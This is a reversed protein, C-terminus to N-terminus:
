GKRLLPRFGKENYATANFYELAPVINLATINLEKGNVVARICMNELFAIQMSDSDVDKPSVDLTIMTQVKPNKAFELLTATYRVVFYAVSDSEKHMDLIYYLDILIQRLIIDVYTYEREDNLLIQKIEYSLIDPNKRAVPIKPTKWDNPKNYTPQKWGGKPINESAYYTLLGVVNSKTIVYLVGDITAHVVVTNYFKEDFTSSNIDGDVSCVRLNVSPISSQNVVTKYVEDVWTYLAKFLNNDESHNHLMTYMDFALSRLVEEADISNKYTCTLANTLHKSIIM